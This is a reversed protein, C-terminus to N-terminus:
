WYLKYEDVDDTGIGGTTLPEAVELVKRNTQSNLPLKVSFANGPFGM